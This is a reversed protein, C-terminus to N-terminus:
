TTTKITTLCLRGNVGIRQGKKLYSGLKEAQKGFLQVPYFGTEEVYEKKEENFTNYHNALTFSLVSGKESVDVEPQKTLRGVMFVSNLDNM